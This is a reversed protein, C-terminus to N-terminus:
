VRFMPTKVDTPSFKKQEYRWYQVEIEETKQWYASLSDVGIVNPQIGHCKFFEECATRSAFNFWDDM